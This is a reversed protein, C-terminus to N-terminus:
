KEQRNKSNLDWYLVCNGSTVLIIDIIGWIRVSLVGLVNM